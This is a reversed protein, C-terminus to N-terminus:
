KEQPLFGCATLRTNLEAQEIILKQQCKDYERSNCNDSNLVGVTGYVKELLERNSLGKVM